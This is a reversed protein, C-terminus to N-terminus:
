RNRKFNTHEYYNVNIYKYEILKYGHLWKKQSLM